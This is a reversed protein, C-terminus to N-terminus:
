IRWWQMHLGLESSTSEAVVVSLRCSPWDWSSIWALKRSIGHFLLQTMLDTCSCASLCLAMVSSWLFIWAASIGSGRLPHFFCRDFCQDLTQSWSWCSWVQCSLFGLCDIFKEMLKFLVDQGIVIVASSYSFSVFCSLAISLHHPSRLGLIWSVDVIHFCGLWFLLGLALHPNAGLPLPLPLSGKFSV